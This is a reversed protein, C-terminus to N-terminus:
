HTPILQVSASSLEQSINVIKIMRKHTIKPSLLFKHWLESIYTNLEPGKYHMNGNGM